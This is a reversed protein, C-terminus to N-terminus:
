GRRGQEPRGQKRKIRTPDTTGEMQYLLLSPAWRKRRSQVTNRGRNEPGPRVGGFLINSMLMEAVQMIWQYDDM